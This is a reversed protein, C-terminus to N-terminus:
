PRDDSPRCGHVQRYARALGQADLGVMAAVTAVSTGVFAPDRLHRRALNLREARLVDRWTTDEHEFARQVTRPALGLTRAARALTLGPDSLHARVHSRVTAAVAGLHHRDPAAGHIANCTLDTLSECTLDFEFATLRPFEEALAFATSALIRGMGWGVDLARSVPTRLALRDDVSRRPLTLLLARWPGFDMRVPASWPIVAATGPRVVMTRGGATVELRGSMAIMLRYDDDPMRKTLGPTREAWQAGHQRVDVVQHRRGRMCQAYGRLDDSTNLAGTSMKQFEWTAQKWYESEDDVDQTSLVTKALPDPPRDRPSRDPSRCTM